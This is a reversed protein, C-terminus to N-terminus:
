SDRPSPSTYLLCAYLITGSFSSAALKKANWLVTEENGGDTGGTFLVIDPSTRLIESLRDERLKYSSDAVIKGGASWAALRAIQLTLDPVLGIAAIRLGGKASSSFRVRPTARTEGEKNGPYSRTTPEGERKRTEEEGQRRGPSVRTVPEGKRPEEERAEGYPLGTLQTYVKAFGQSLDEQTTPTIVRQVLRLGEETRLFLAGKTYTSGIDISVLEERM